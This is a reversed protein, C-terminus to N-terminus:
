GWAGAAKVGRFINRTSMETLPQTSGFPMIRGSPDLWYFIGIVDDPISRAVEPKYHLAVVLLRWRVILSCELSLATRSIEKSVVSVVKVLLM